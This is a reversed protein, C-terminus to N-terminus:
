RASARVTWRPRVRKRSPTAVATWGPAAGASFSCIGSRGISPRPSNTALSAPVSVSEHCRRRRPALSVRRARPILVVEVATPDRRRGRGNCAASRSAPAAPRARGFTPRGATPRPSRRSSRWASAPKGRPRPTARTSSRSASTPPIGSGEDAVFFVDGSKTAGVRIAVADGGHDIANRLLNELLQQVGEPDAECQLGGELAFTADGLEATARCNELLDSLPVTATEGTSQCQRAHTLVDDILTDIRDLASLAAELHAGDGTERALELRSTAVNLPNRLDHSVVSAFEDLRENQRELEETRAQLTEEREVRDTIDTFTIVRGVERDLSDSLPSVEVDYHEKRGDRVIGVQDHTDRADAFKRIIEPFEAFVTTVTRGVLQMESAGIIREAQPNLDVIQDENDVVLVGSDMNQVVTGRAIPVLDLLRYRFLGAAFLLGTAVFGFPTIDLETLGALYVINAGWPVLTAALVLGAQSQYVGTNSRRARRFENALWYTTVVLLVYHYVAEAWFLPGPTIEMAVYGLDTTMSTGSRLLQHFPDTWVVLNILLAMGGLLGLRPRTLWQERNTFEAAFLFISPVLLTTGLFRVNRWLIKAEEATSSVRLGAAACWIAAGLLVGTLPLATRQDRSRFAVISLTVSIIAAGALPITYPTVQWEM